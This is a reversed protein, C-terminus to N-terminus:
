GHPVVGFVEEINVEVDESQIKFWYETEGKERDHYKDVVVGHNTAVLRLDAILLQIKQEKSMIPFKHLVM